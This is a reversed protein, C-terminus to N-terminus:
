VKAKARKRSAKSRCTINHCKATDPQKTRLSKGCEQCEAWVAKGSRVSGSGKARRHHNVRCVANHFRQDSRSLTGVALAYRCM